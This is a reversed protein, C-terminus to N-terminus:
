LIKRRLNGLSFVLVSLELVLLRQVIPCRNKTKGKAYRCSMLIQVIEADCKSVKEM